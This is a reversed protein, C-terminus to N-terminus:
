DPLHRAPRDRRNGSVPCVPEGTVSPGGGACREEIGKSHGQIRSAVEEDEVCEVLADALHRGPGDGRDGSISVSSVRAVSPRRGPRRQIEGTSAEITSHPYVR